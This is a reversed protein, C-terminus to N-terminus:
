PKTCMPEALRQAVCPWEALKELLELGSLFRYQDRLRSDIIAFSRNHNDYESKYLEIRLVDAKFCPEPKGAIAWGTREPRRQWFSIHDLVEITADIETM